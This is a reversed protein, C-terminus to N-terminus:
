IEKKLRLKFTKTLRSHKRATKLFNEDSMLYIARQISLPAEIYNIIWDKFGKVKVKVFKIKTNDSLTVYIIM